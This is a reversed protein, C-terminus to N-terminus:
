TGEMAHWSFSRKEAAIKGKYIISVKWRDIKGRDIFDKGINNVTWRYTGRKVSPLPHKETYLKEADKITRYEFLVTLHGKLKHGNYKWTIVYSEGRQEPRVPRAYDFKIIGRSGIFGRRDPPVVWLKEVRNVKLIHFKHSLEPSPTEARIGGNFFFLSILTIIARKMISWNYVMGKELDM